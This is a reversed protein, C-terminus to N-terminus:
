SPTPGSASANLWEAIAAADADGPEHGGPVVVLQVVAGATELMAALAESKARYADREGALVLVEVGSLDAEPVQDLVAVPRLLIAKRVLLEPRLLLAAALFNAGNSYGLGIMGAPDLQYASRSEELFAALAGAEFR